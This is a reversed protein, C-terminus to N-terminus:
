GKSAQTTRSPRKKRKPKPCPKEEEGFIANWKDYSVKPPPFTASRAGRALADGQM